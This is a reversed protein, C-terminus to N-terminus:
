RQAGLEVKVGELETAPAVAARGAVVSGDLLRAREGVIALEGVVSREVVAGPRVVSGPLLVSRHVRAGDHVRAGAGVIACEVHARVEIFCANGILAPPHVSGDIVLHGQRARGRRSGAPGLSV